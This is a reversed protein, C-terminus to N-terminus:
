LSDAHGRPYATYVTGATSLMEAVQGTVLTGASGAHNISWTKSGEIEPDLMADLANIVNQAAALGAEGNEGYATLGMVTDMSFIQADHREDEGCGALSLATVGALLLAAARKIYRRM